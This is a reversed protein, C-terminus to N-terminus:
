AIYTIKGTGGYGYNGSDTKLYSNIFTHPFVCDTLNADDYFISDDSDGCGKGVYLGQPLKLNFNWMDFEPSLCDRKWHCPTSSDSQVLCRKFGDFPYYGVKWYNTWHNGIGPEDNDLEWYNTWNNGVEPKDNDLEWAPSLDPSITQYVSRSIPLADHLSLTYIETTATDNFFFFFLM